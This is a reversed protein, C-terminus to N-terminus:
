SERPPIYGCNFCEGDFNLDHCTCPRSPKKHKYFVSHACIPCYYARFSPGDLDAFGTSLTFMRACNMCIVRLQKANDSTNQVLRM